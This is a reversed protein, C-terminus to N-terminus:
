RHMTNWFDRIRFSVDVIPLFWPSGQHWWRIPFGTQACATEGEPRGLMRLAAKDGLYPAMAGHHQPQRLVGDRALDRALALTQYSASLSAPAAVGVTASRCAALNRFFKRSFDACRANPSLKPTNFMAARGGFIIRKGDPSPRYYCHRERSEVVIRSKPFLSRIKNTGLPEAAVIFSPVPIIRRRLHNLIAPTYGNTAALVAGARVHGRPTKAVHAARDRALSTVPRNGQIRAGARSAVALLGKVFKAPNLGGHQPYVIGGAYLDTAVEDRQRSRPVMEAEIPVLAQLRKLESGAIEYESARWLGRFRGTEAFDCDIGESAILGKVFAASDLHAERLLAVATARGFRAELDDISLRHGGGLMGGNRSSAGAGPAAADLVLVSKGAKALTGAASLGTLGAGIILVDVDSPLATEVPPLPKGGDDWWFPESKPKASRGNEGSWTTL